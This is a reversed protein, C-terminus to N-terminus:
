YGPLRQFPAKIPPLPGFPGAHYKWKYTPDEVHRIWYLEGSNRWPDLIIGSDFPYGKATVLLTSHERWPNGKNSVGWYLDFSKLSKHRMIEIMASAWDTCLGKPRVKANRLVNHMLPPWTLNWEKALYLPYVYADHAVDIAEQRNINPGLTMLAAALEQIDRDMSPKMSYLQPRGDPRMMVPATQVTCGALALALSATMLIRASVNM